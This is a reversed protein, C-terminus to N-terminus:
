SRFRRKAPSRRRMACRRGTCRQPSRRIAPSPATTAAPPASEPVPTAPAQVEPPAADPTAQALLPTSSFALIAAIATMAPRIRPTKHTMILTLARRVMISADRRVPVEAAQLTSIVARSSRGSQAWGAREAGFCDLGAPSRRRPGLSLFKGILIEAAGGQRICNGTEAEAEAGAGGGAARTRRSPQVASRCIAKMRTKNAPPLTVRAAAAAPM